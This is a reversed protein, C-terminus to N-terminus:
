RNRMSRPLAFRRTFCTCKVRLAYPLDDPQSVFVSRQETLQRAYQPFWRKRDIEMECERCWLGNLCIPCQKERSLETRKEPAVVDSGSLWNFLREFLGPM